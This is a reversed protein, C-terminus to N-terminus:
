RVKCELVPNKRGHQNKIIMQIEKKELIIIKKDCIYKNYISKDMMIHISKSNLDLTMSKVKKLIKNKMVQILNQNKINQNIKKVALAKM